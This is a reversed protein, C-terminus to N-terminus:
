RNEYLFDLEFGPPVFMATALFDKILVEVEFFVVLFAVLFTAALGTEAAFSAVAIAVVALNSCYSM